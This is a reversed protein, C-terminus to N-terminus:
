NQSDYQQWFDVGRQIRDEQLFLKRYKGWTFRYEAPNQMADLIQQQFDVQEFLKDLEKQTYIKQTILQDAIQQLKPEQKLDIAESFSIFCLCWLLAMANILRNTLKSKIDMNSTM